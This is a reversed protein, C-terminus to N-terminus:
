EHGSGRGQCTGALEELAEQSATVPGGTSAPPRSRGPLPEDARDVAGADAPPGAESRARDVALVGLDAEDWRPGVSEVHVTRTEDDPDRSREIHLRLRDGSLHDAVEWGWEVVTVSESMSAELDLDDVEAPGRLRYADVHVLTPGKVLSPHVRSLVFTPSIVPGKVQLGAGIGQTLSTKGAGLEGSLLVLDGARLLGALRRGLADM